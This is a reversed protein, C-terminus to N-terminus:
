TSSSLAYARCSERSAKSSSRSKATALDALSVDSDYDYLEYDYKGPPRSLAGVLVLDFRSAYAKVEM